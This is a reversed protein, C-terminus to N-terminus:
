GIVALVQTRQFEDVVRYCQVVIRLLVCDPLLIFSQLQPHKNLFLGNMATHEIEPVAEARGIVSVAIAHEYDQASNGRNDILMSLSANQLLNAHKQTEKMTAIILYRLDQTHAFAMLSTYPQGCSQASAAQECQSTAMVGVLQGALLKQVRDALDSSETQPMTVRLQHRLKLTILAVSFGAFNQIVPANGLLNEISALILGSRWLGHAMLLLSVMDVRM